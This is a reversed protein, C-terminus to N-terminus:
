PVVEDLVEQGFDGIWFPDYVFDCFAPNPAGREAAEPLGDYFFWGVLDVGEELLIRYVDEASLHVEAHTEFLDLVKLRPGTVKM